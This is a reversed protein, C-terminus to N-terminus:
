AGLKERILRTVEGGDASGRTERMVAGVLAGIAKMEGAKVKEAADPEAAIARDVVEGLDTDSEFEKALEEPDGGETVLKELVQRGVSRNVDGAAVM